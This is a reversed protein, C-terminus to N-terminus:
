QAPHPPLDTVCEGSLLFFAGSFASSLSAPICSAQLYSSHNSKPCLGPVFSSPSLPPAIPSPNPLSPLCSTPHTSHEPQAAACLHLMTRAGFCPASFAPPALLCDLGQEWAVHGSKPKM